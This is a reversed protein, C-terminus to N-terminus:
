QIKGSIELVPLHRGIRTMGMEVEGNQVLRINEAFGQSVQATASLNPIKAKTRIYEAMAGTFVYTSSGPGGGAM